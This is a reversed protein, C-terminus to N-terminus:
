RIGARVVNDLGVMTLQPPSGGLDGFHCTSCDSEGTAGTHQEPAGTPYALNKSGITIGGLLFLIAPLFYHAQTM